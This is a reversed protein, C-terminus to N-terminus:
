HRALLQLLTKRKDNDMSVAMSAPRPIRSLAADFRQLRPPM